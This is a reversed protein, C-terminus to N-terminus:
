VFKERQTTEFERELRGLRDEIGHILFGHATMGGLATLINSMLRDMEKVKKALRDELQLVYGKLMEVREEPTM